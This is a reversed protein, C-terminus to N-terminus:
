VAAPSAPAKQAGKSFFFGGGFMCLAHFIFPGILTVLSNYGSSQSLVERM